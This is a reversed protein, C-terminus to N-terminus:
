VLEVWIKHQKIFRHKKYNNNKENWLEGKKETETDIHHGNMPTTQNQQKNHEVFYLLCFM